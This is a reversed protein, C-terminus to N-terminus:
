WYDGCSCVGDKFHHFRNTDRLVIERGAYGSVFKIAEHCETCVRLNKMVRILRGGEVSILGFAVALRESHFDAGRQIGEIETEIDEAKEMSTMLRTREMAVQIESLKTYIEDSRAHSRDAAVFSHVQQGLEVWSLGAEKKVGRDRMAKRAEAAEHLLGADAYTNVLLVYAGSRKSGTKFLHEAAFSAMHIDGHMRSAGLLAGWVSECPELPMKEIFGKAELLRGSRGLADVMCTYHASLPEIHHKHLMLSFYSEAKDVLGSRSCVSLICLFTIFNPQFGSAQMEEFLEFARASLGHQSCAAIVANWAGLSKERMERFVREAEKVVGCRAYMGIIASEVFSSGEVGVKVCVGRVAEGLGLCGVGGCGRMVSSLVSENVGVGEELARKFACVAETCLGGYVLGSILGGWTVVNREPMEDFMKCACFIDGLKAYMDVLASGVYVVGDLGSKVSLAHLARATLEYQASGAATIACPLSFETPRHGHLLMSKFHYIAEFHLQNQALASIISSFTAQTKVPATKFLLTAENIFSCKAYLNLLHNTFLPFSFFGIKISIAHIQFGKCINKTPIFSRLLDCLHRCAQEVGNSSSGPRNRPIELSSLHTQLQVKPAGNCSIPPPAQPIELSIFQTLTM